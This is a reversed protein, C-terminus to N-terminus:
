YIPRKLDLEQIINGPRFNFNEQVIKVLDDDTRDDTVSGYSDIHISLPDALGIAYSV